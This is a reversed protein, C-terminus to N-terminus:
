GDTRLQSVGRLASSVMTVPLCPAVCPLAARSRCPLRVM